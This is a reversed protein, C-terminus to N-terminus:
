NYFREESVKDDRVTHGCGAEAVKEGERFYRAGERRRSPPSPAQV